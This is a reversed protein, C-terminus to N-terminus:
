IIINQTHTDQHYKRVRNADKLYLPCYWLTVTCYMLDWFKCKVPLRDGKGLLGGHGEGRQGQCGGDWERTGHM